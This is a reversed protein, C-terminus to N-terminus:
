IHHGLINNYRRRNKTPSLGIKKKCQCRGGFIISISIQKPYYRRVICEIVVVRCHYELDSIVM